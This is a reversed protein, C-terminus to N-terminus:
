SKKATVAVSNLLSVLVRLAEDSTVKHRTCFLAFDLLEEPKMLAELKGLTGKEIGTGEGVPIPRRKLRLNGTIQVGPDSDKIRMLESGFLRKFASIIEVDSTLATEPSVKKQTAM